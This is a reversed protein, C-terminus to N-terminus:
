PPLIGLIAVILLIITGLFLEVLVNFHLQPVVINITSPSLRPKLRLLNLAGIAVAGLFLLIKLLLWRGYPQHILNSLSGVLFWANVFGTAALLAVCGLSCISFRRILTVTSNSEVPAPIQRVRNLWLALPFLGAPWFGAALLHLVDAFLHWSSDEQGHGAWALASLLSASLVLQFCILSKQFRSTMERLGLCATIMALLWLLLRIKWVTGFETQTWVTKLIELRPPQGSMIEAVLIFWAIGSIFILPLLTWILLRLRSLWYTSEEFSARANALIFRDFALFAFVLLCAGIHVARTLVLLPTM